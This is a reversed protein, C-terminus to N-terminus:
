KRRKGCIFASLPAVTRTGSVSEPHEWHHSSEGDLLLEWSGDPLLLDYPTQSSNFCVTIIEWPSQQNRVRFEVVGEALIKRDFVNAAAEPSKDTLGDIQRRLAILGKYYELVDEYDYCRTWDIKNIESSSTYSNEDGLKTRAAEEGAQFFIRGQCSFCIAAALKYARVVEEDRVAFDAGPKMTIMLKDWLTLNDHASIYSVIQSPAQVPFASATKDVEASADVWARVANLIEEEHGSGGNVFGPVEQYFVHGKICDRTNDCFVGVNRDLLHLNEKKCPHFGEAMPSDFASWPEGYLLIKGKGYRLDLERRIRNMLETDLLGMLDFRFGDMHYEEAWYLVSELIYNGAMERESAIDNGCDSGTSCTGDEYQRYFYYPNTRNLWSDLSYTHNYVVDMIVGLGQKHLAQIAEKLERIRVAGDHPNTSYSGEPVNYNVPDYGWNFQDDAGAEDVSGYDYVPLLQVHTVGLEKLYSVCTPKEGAGNLTTGELTFAKYKGRYEAPVGSAEDFSFDKVHIEYIVQDRDHVPRVDSSWGQPDTLALDVAMSRVGNCGAAKAWPDASIVTKGHFTLEYDYYIEHEVEKLIFEWVGKEGKRMSFAAYAESTDNRYLRLTVAEALPSWLRFSVSDKKRVAGLDKGDYIYEKKFEESEYLIKYDKATM